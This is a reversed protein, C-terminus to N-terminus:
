ARVAPWVPGHLLQFDLLAIWLFFNAKLLKLFSFLEAKAGWPAKLTQVSATVWSFLNFRFVVCVWVCVRDDIFPLWRSTNGGLLLATNLTDGGGGGWGDGVKELEHEVALRWRVFTESEAQTDLNNLVGPPATSPCAWPAAAGRGKRVMDVATIPLLSM